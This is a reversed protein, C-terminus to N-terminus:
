NNEVMAKLNINSIMKNLIEFQWDSYEKYRGEEICDNVIQLMQPKTIHTLVMYINYCAIVDNLKLRNVNWWDINTNTELLPFLEYQNDISARVKDLTAPDKLAKKFLDEYDIEEYTDKEKSMQKEGKLGM